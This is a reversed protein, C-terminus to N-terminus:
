PKGDGSRSPRLPTNASLTRRPRRLIPSMAARTAAVITAPRATLRIAARMSIPAFLAPQAGLTTGRFGAPAVGVVTLSKGDVLITQGVISRDGGYHEQWFDHSLVTVFNAGIVADDAPQLLRGIAPAIGLVGFYSGSVFMGQGTMAENKISLNAGFLVHAALGSFPTQKQELDRFMPYSFVEECNGAQNCSQSGPKPGPASLNILERPNPVPLPRLQPM